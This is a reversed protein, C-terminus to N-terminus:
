IPAPVHQRTNRAFRNRSAQRHTRQTPQPCRVTEPFVDSTAVGSHLLASVMGRVLAMDAAAGIGHGTIDGVVLAV